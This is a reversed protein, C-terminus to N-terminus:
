KKELLLRCVLDHRRHLQAYIHDLSLRHTLLQRITVKAMAVNPYDTLYRGLPADLEVRGEEVLQLIAVATFMKGASALFMPTDLTVARNDSRDAIGWSQALLREKGRQVIVAGAFADRATLRQAISAVAEVAGTGPLPLPRLDVTKLKAPDADARELKLRLLGPLCKQRLLLTTAKDSAEVVKDLTVGCSDEASELAFMPNPDDNRAAYFGKIRAADGANFADRWEEFLANMSPATEVPPQAMVTTAMVGLAAIMTCRLVAKM